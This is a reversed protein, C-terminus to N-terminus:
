GRLGWMRHVRHIESVPFVVSHVRIVQSGLEHQHYRCQTRQGIGPGQQSWHQLTRCRMSLGERAPVLLLAAFPTIDTWCATSTLQVLIYCVTVMVIYRALQCAIHHCSQWSASNSLFNGSRKLALSRLTCSKAWSFFSSAVKILSNIWCTSCCWQWGSNSGSSASWLMFSRNIPAKSSPLRSTMSKFSSSSQPVLRWTTWTVLLCSAAPAAQLGLTPKTGARQRWPACPRLLPNFRQAKLAM